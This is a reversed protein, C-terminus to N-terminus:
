FTTLRQKRERAMFGDSLDSIKSKGYNGMIKLVWISIRISWETSPSASCCRGSKRRCKRTGLTERGASEERSMWACNSLSQWNPQKIWSSETHLNSRLTAPTGCFVTLLFLRYLSLLWSDNQAKQMYTADDLVPSDVSECYFHIGNWVMTGSLRVLGHFPFHHRSVPQVPPVSQPVMPRASSGDSEACVASWERCIRNSGKSVFFHNPWTWKTWKTWKTQTRIWDMDLTSWGEFFTHRRLYWSRMRCVRKHVFMRLVRLFEVAQLELVDCHWLVNWYEAAEQGRIKEQFQFLQVLGPWGSWFCLCRWVQFLRQVTAGESVSFSYKFGAAPFAYLIMFPDTLRKVVSTHEFDDLTCRAELMKPDM